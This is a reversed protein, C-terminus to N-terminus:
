FMGKKFGSILGIAISLVGLTPFIAWVILTTSDWGVTNATFFVGLAIPLLIAGLLLTYFVDGVGQGMNITDGVEYLPVADQYKNITSANLEKVVKNIRYSLQKKLCGLM